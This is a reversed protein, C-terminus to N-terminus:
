LGVGSGRKRDQRNTSKLRAALPIARLMTLVWGEAEDKLCEVDAGWEAMQISFDIDQTDQYYLLLATHGSNDKANIDAGSHLLLSICDKYGNGAAYMLPTKGESHRANVEAGREILLRVIDIRGMFAARMLATLGSKSYQNIQAGNDLLYQVCEPCRSSAALMLPTLTRENQTNIDAGGHHSRILGALNGDESHRLLNTNPSRPM